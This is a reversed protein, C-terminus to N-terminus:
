IYSFTQNDHVCVYMSSKGESPHTSTCNVFSVFFVVTDQQRMEMHPKLTSNSIHQFSTVRPLLLFMDSTVTNETLCTIRTVMCYSDSFGMFLWLQSRYICVTSIFLVYLTFLVDASLECPTATLCM